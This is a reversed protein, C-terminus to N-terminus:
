CVLPKNLRLLRQPEEERGSGHCGFRGRCCSGPGGQQHDLSGVAHHRPMMVGQFFHLNQCTEALFFHSQYNVYSLKSLRTLVMKTLILFLFSCSIQIKGLCTRWYLLYQDVAMVSFQPKRFLNPFGLNDDLHSTVDSLLSVYARVSFHSCGVFACPVAM